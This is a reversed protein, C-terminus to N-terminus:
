AAVYVGLLQCLEPPDEKLQHPEEPQNEPPQPHHPQHHLQYVLFHIKIKQEEKISVM